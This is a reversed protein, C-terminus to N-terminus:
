PMSFVLEVICGEGPTTHITTFDIRLVDRITIDDEAADIVVPAAATDSTEETSDVTCGTSLMDAAQTVNWVDVTFVGTTGAVKLTVRVDVLNWGAMWEPTPWIMVDDKVVHTTELAIPYLDVSRKGYDSGALGDPTVSKAAETGASTEAISAYVNVVGASTSMALWKVLTEDYILFAFDEVDDLIIDAQGVCSINDVDHDIIVTRGDHDPRIILISGECIDGSITITSLHDSAADGFTDITHYNQTAIVAGAADITLETAEVFALTNWIKEQNTQLTNVHAAMVDDVDDVKVVHALTSRAM